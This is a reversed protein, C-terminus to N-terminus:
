IGIYWHNDALKVYNQEGNKFSYHKLFDRHLTIVFKVYDDGWKQYFDGVFQKLRLIDSDDLEGQVIFAHYFPNIEQEYPINLQKLGYRAQQTLVGDDLYRFAMNKMYPFASKIDSLFQQKSEITFPKARQRSLHMVPQAIDDFDLSNWKIQPWHKILWRAVDGKEIDLNKIKILDPQAIANNKLMEYVLRRERASEAFVYVANDAGLLVQIKQHPRFFEAINKVRREAETYHYWSFLALGAAALLLFLYPFYRKQQNLFALPKNVGLRGIAGADDKKGDRQYDWSADALKAVFQVNGISYVHNFQLTISEDQQDENQYYVVIKYDPENETPFKISFNCLNDQETPILIGYDPLALSKNTALWKQNVVIFVNDGNKITYECGSLTTNMLKVDVLGM